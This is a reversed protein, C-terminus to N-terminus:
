IAYADLAGRREGVVSIRGDRIKVVDPFLKAFQKFSAKHKKLEDRFGAAERKMAAAATSLTSGNRVITKLRDAYPALARKRAADM